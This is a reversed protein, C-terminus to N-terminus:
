VCLGIYVYAEYMLAKMCMSGWVCLGEYYSLRHTYLGKPIFNMGLPRWASPGGDWPSEYVHAKVCMTRWLSPGKYVHGMMCMPRWVDPFEYVCPKKVRMLRYQSCFGLEFVIVIVMVLNFLTVNLWTNLCTLLHYHWVMFHVYCRFVISREYPM